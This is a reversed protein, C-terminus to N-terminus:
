SARPRRCTRDRDRERPVIGGPFRTGGEAITGAGDRFGQVAPEPAIVSAAPRIRRVKMQFEELRGIAWRSPFGTRDRGGADQMDRQTRSDWDHRFDNECTGGPPDLPAVLLGGAAARGDGDDQ